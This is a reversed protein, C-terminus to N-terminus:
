KQEEKERQIRQYVSYRHIDINDSASFGLRVQMNEPALVQVEIHEGTTKDTLIIPGDFTRASLVLM